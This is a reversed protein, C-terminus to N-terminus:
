PGCRGLLRSFDLPQEDDTAERLAIGVLQARLDGLDVFVESGARPVADDAGEAGRFVRCQGGVAAQGGRFM